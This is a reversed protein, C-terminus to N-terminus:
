GKNETLQKGRVEGKGGHEDYVTGVRFLIYDSIARMREGGDDWCELELMTHKRMKEVPREGFEIGNQWCVGSNDFRFLYQHRTIPWTREVSRSSNKLDATTGRSPGVGSSYSDAAEVDTEKMHSSWVGASIAQTNLDVPSFDTCYM